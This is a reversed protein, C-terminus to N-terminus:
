RIFLVLRPIYIGKFIKQDIMFEVLQTEKKNIIETNKDQFNLKALVKVKIEDIELIKVKEIILNKSANYDENLLYISSYPIGETTYTELLKFFRKEGLINLPISDEIMMMGERQIGKHFTDDNSLHIKVWKSLHNSKLNEKSIFKPQIPKQAFVTIIEMSILILSIFTIKTVMNKIEKM